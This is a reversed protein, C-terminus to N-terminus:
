LHCTGPSGSAAVAIGLRSATASAAIGVTALALSRSSVGALGTATLVRGCTPIAALRGGYREWPDRSVVAMSVMSIEQIEPDKGMEAYETVSWGKETRYRM